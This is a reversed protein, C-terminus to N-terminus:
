LPTGTPKNFCLENRNCVSAFNLLVRSVKKETDSILYELVEVGTDLISLGISNRIKRDSEPVVYESVPVKQRM